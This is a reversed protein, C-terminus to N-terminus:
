AEEYAAICGFVQTLYKEQNGSLTMGRILEAVKEAGLEKLIQAKEADTYDDSKLMDSLDSKTNIDRAAGQLTHYRDTDSVSMDDVRNLASTLVETVKETETNGSFQKQISDTIPFYESVVSLPYANDSSYVKNVIKALDESTGDNNDSISSLYSVLSQGYDDEFGRAFELAKEPPLDSDNLVNLINDRLDTYYANFQAPGTESAQPLKGAVNLLIDAKESASISDDEVISNLTNMGKKISDYDNWSEIANIEDMAYKYEDSHKVASITQQSQVPTEKKQETKEAQEPEETKEAKVTEAPKDEEKAVEKQEELKDSFQIKGNEDYSIVPLKLNAGSYILNPNEIGNMECIQAQVVKRDGSSLDPYANSIIRSLCDNAARGDAKSNWPEVNVSCTGDDNMVVGSNNLNIGKATNKTDEVSVDDLISNIETMLSDLDADDGFVKANMLAQIDTADIQATNEVGSLGKLGNFEDEDVIGDQNGDMLAATAVYQKIEDESLDGFADEGGALAMAINQTTNNVGDAQKNNFISNLSGYDGKLTKASNSDNAKSLLTKLEESQKITLKGFGM